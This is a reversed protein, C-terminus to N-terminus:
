ADKASSFASQLEGSTVSVAVAVTQGTKVLCKSIRRLVDTNDIEKIKMWIM